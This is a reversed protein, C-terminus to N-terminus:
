SNKAKQATATAADADARAKDLRERMSKLDALTTETAKLIGSLFEKLDSDATNAVREALIKFKADTRVVVDDDGMTVGSRDDNTSM